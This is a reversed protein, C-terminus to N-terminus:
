LSSWGSIEEKPARYIKANREELTQCHVCKTVGQILERRKQPIEVDCCECFELSPTQKIQGRITKIALDTHFEIIEGVHDVQDCM